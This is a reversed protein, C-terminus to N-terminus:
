RTPNIELSRKCKFPSQLKNFKDLMSNMAEEAYEDFITRIYEESTMEPTELETSVPPLLTLKNTTITCQMLCYKENLWPELNDEKRWNPTIAKPNRTCPPCKFTPVTQVDDCADILGDKNKDQYRLFPSEAM